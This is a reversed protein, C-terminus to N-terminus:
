AVKAVADIEVRVDDPLRAAEICVRAPPTDGVHEAYAENVADYDDMDTVYVTVKVLDDLSGGAERVVAALNDMVRHTQARVDGDVDEGTEPDVPGFGSVFLFGDALVGQSYPNDNQPAGSTSIARKDAM